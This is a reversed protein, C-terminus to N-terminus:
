KKNKNQKNNRAEVMQKLKKKPMEQDFKIEENYIYPVTTNKKVGDLIRHQEKPDQVRSLTNMLTPINKALLEDCKKMATARDPLVKGYDISVYESKSNLYFYGQKTGKSAPETRSDKTIGVPRSRVLSFDDKYLKYISGKYIRIKGIGSLDALIDVNDDKKM